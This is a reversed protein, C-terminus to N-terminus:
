IKGLKQIYGRKVDDQFPDAYIMTTNINSHGLMKQLHTINGGDKLYNKAFSHRLTHSSVQKIKARRCLSKVMKDINERWLKKGTNSMCIYDSEQMKHYGKLEEVEDQIVEYDIYSIRDKDGKGSIVKIEYLSNEEDFLLSGYKLNLVESIRLGAFLMLKIILSNRFNVMENKDTKEEEVQNILKISEEESLGKPKSKKRKIKIKKFVKEFDLLDNSEDEIFSFFSKLISIILMKTNSSLEGQKNMTLEKYEFFSYVLSSKITNFSIFENYTKIYEIFSNLTRKYSNITNVSKNDYKLKNIYSKLYKALQQSFDYNNVKEKEM